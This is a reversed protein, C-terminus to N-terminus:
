SYMAIYHVATAVRLSWKPQWLSNNQNALPILNLVQRGSMNGGQLLPSTRGLM